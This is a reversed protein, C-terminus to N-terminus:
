SIQRTGKDAFEIKAQATVIQFAATQVLTFLNVAEIYSVEPLVPASVVRAGHLKRM